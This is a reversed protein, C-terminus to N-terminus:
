PALERRVAEFRGEVIAARARAMLDLLHHLNHITLLRLGTIESQM